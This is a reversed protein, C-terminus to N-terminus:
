VAPSVSIDKLTLTCAVALLMVSSQPQLAYTVLAVDIRCNMGWAVSVKLPLKWSLPTWCASSFLEKLAPVSAALGHM